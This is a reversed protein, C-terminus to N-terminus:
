QQLWFSFHLFKQLSKAVTPTALDKETVM